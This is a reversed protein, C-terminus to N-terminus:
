VQFLSLSDECCSLKCQEDLEQAAEDEVEFECIPSDDDAPVKPEPEGVVHLTSAPHSSQDRLQWTCCVIKLAVSMTFVLMMM